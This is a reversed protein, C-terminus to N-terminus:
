SVLILLFPRRGEAKRISFTEKTGNQTLQATNLPRPDM